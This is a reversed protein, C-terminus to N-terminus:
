RVESNARESVITAFCPTCVGFALGGITVGGIWFLWEAAAPLPGSLGCFSWAVALIALGWRHTAFVGFRRILPSSLAGGGLLALRWAARCLSANAQEAGLYSQLFM